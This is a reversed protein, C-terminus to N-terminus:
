QARVTSIRWPLIELGRTLISARQAAFSWGESMSLKKAPSVKAINKNEEQIARINELNKELISVISEESVTAYAVSESSGDQKIGLKGSAKSIKHLPGGPPRPMWGSLIFM